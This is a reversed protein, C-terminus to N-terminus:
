MKRIPLDAYPQIADYKRRLRKRIRNVKSESMHHMISTNAISKGHAWDSLVVLEEETLCANAQMAGLM